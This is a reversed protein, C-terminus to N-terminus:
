RRGRRAVGSVEHQLESAAAHRAQVKAVLPLQKSKTAATDLGILLKSVSAFDEASLAQDLLGLGTDVVAPCADTAALPVAAAFATARMEMAPVTFEKDMADIAALATQLDGASSALDRAEGFCVFRLAADGETEQGQDLLKKALASRAVM